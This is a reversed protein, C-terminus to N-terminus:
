EEDESADLIKEIQSARMAEIKDEPQETMDIANSVGLFEQMGNLYEAYEETSMSQIYELTPTLYIADEGYDSSATIKAAEHAASDTTRKRTHEYRIYEKGFLQYGFFSRIEAWDADTLERDDDIKYVSRYNPLRVEVLKRFDGEPMDYLTQMTLDTLLPVGSADEGLAEESNIVEEIPELVEEAKGCGALLATGILLLLAAATRTKNKM